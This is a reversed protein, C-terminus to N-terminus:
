CAVIRRATRAVASEPRNKNKRAEVGLEATDLLENLDDLGATGARVRLAAAAWDLQIFRDFGIKPSSTKM